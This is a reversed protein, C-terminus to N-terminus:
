ERPNDMGEAAELAAILDDFARDQPAHFVMKLCDGFVRVNEDSYRRPRPTLDDM